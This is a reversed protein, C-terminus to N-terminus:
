KALISEIKKILEAPIVPKAMYFNKGIRGSAEEAETKRMLGTLFLIPINSTLKYDRLVRAVEGGDIDPMNVDLIIMDPLNEKALDIGKQAKVATLAEYIGTRELISKTFNCIDEEDDIILVRKKSEM